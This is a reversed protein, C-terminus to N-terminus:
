EINQLENLIAGLRTKGSLYTVKEESILSEILKRLIQIGSKIEILIVHNLELKGERIVRFVDELVHAMSEIAKFGLGMANGKLVHFKMFLADILNKNKQDKELFSFLENIEVQSNIADAYFIELYQTTAM